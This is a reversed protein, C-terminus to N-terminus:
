PKMPTVQVRLVKVKRSNVRCVVIHRTLEKKSKKNNTGKQECRGGKRKPRNNKDRFKIPTETVMVQGLKVKPPRDPYPKM